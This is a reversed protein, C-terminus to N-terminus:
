AVLKPGFQAANFNSVTWALGTAPDTERVDSYYLYSTSLNHTTGAYETGGSKAVHAAQRTGADDKRALMSVQVGKITGTLTIDAFHFLDTQGATASSVYSTDGDPPNSNAAVYHDAAGTLSMESKDGAANPLVTYVRCDGLLDNNASGTGDCVYTDDVHTNAACGHFTVSNASQNATNSLDQGTAVTIVDAGNVRVKCSSASIADAITVKFEIFYYSGARLAFSSTGSALATGNRTVSLTGDPNIRVECQQTGQDLLRIIPAAASPFGPALYGVGVVWTAQADFTKQLFSGSALDALKLSNGGFRGTGSSVTAGSSNTWKANIEATSYHDGGGDMFRLM